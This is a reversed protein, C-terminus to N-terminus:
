WRIAREAIKQPASGDCRIASINLQLTAHDDKKLKVVQITGQIKKYWCRNLHIFTSYDVHINETKELDYMAGEKLLERNLVVVHLLKDTEENSISDVHVIDHEYVYEVCKSHDTITIDTHVDEGRLIYKKEHRKPAFGFAIVCFLLIFLSRM